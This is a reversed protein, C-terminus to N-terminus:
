GMMGGLTGAAVCTCFTTALHIMDKPLGGNMAASTGFLILFYAVGMLFGWLFKKTKMKKGAIFGGIWCSLVYIVIIGINVFTGNLQFKNLMMAMAILGLGTIIYMLILDVIMWKYSRQKEMNKEISKQEM